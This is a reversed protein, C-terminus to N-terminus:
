VHELQVGRTRVGLRAVVLAQAVLLAAVFAVVGRQGTEAFLPVIVLPAAFAAIRGIAAAMGITQLRAKTAFLEPVYSIMALTAYLYLMTVVVFGLSVILLPTATFAYAAGFAAAALASAVVSWKREFRDAAWLALVSGAPAGIMMILSFQTSAVVSHGAAVFFTPLWAVFGWVAVLAAVHIASAVVFRAGFSAQRVSLPRAEGDAVPALPRAPEIAPLPTKASAEVRKVIAMAAEGAGRLYLWRPSEELLLRLGFVVFGALAPAALLWRWGAEMPLFFLGLAMTMPLGVSALLAVWSMWRGRLRAPMFEIMIGYALVTEGGLALAAGLRWGILAEISSASAAGLATVIVALMSVRMMFLRGFRDALYGMVAGGAALGFTTAMALHAIQSLDAFGERLLAGSVGATMALDVSDVILGAAVIIALQHHFRTVPMRDLRAGIEDLASQGSEHEVPTM